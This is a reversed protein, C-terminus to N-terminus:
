SFNLNFITTATAATFREHPRPPRCGSFASFMTGTPLDMNVTLGGKSITDTLLLNDDGTVGM